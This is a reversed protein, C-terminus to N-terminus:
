CPPCDNDDNSNLYSQIIAGSIGAIIYPIWECTFTEAFKMYRPDSLFFEYFDGNTISSKSGCQYAVMKYYAYQKGQERVFGDVADYHSGFCKRIWNGERSSYPTKNLINMLPKSAIYAHTTMSITYRLNPTINYGCISWHGLYYSLWDKPLSKYADFIDNLTHSRFDSRFTVDDEFICVNNCKNRLADMMVRRHSEFCGRVPDESDRKPRYFQILPCLGVRHFEEEVTKQRDSRSAVSICVIKDLWQWNWEQTLRKSPDKACYCHDRPTCGHYIMSDLTRESIKKQLMKDDESNLYGDNKYNEKM